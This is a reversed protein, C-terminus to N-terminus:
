NICGITDPPWIVRLLYRLQWIQYFRLPAIVVSQVSSTSYGTPPLMDVDSHKLKNLKVYNNNQVQYM